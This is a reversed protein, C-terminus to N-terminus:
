RGNACIERLQERHGRSSHLETGDELVVVYGGHFWPQLERMRGYLQKLRARTNAMGPGKEM